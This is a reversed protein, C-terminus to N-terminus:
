GLFRNNPHPQLLQACLAPVAAPMALLESARRASAEEGRIMNYLTCLCREHAAPPAQRDQLLLLLAQACPTATRTPDPVLPSHTCM